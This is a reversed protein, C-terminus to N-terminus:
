ITRLIEGITEEEHRSAWRPADNRVVGHDVRGDGLLLRVVELYHNRTAWEIAYGDMDRPDARGDDLLLRVVEL